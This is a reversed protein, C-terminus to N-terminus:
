NTLINLYVSTNVEFIICVCRIEINPNQFSPNNQVKSYQFVWNWFTKLTVTTESCRLNLKKTNHRSNPTENQFIERCRGIANLLYRHWISVVTCMQLYHHNKGDRLFAESTRNQFTLSCISLAAVLIEWLNKKRRVVKAEGKWWKDAM